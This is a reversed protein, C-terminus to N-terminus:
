NVGGGGSKIRKVFKVHVDMVDERIQWVALLSCNTVPSLLIGNVTCYVCVCILWIALVTNSTKISNRLLFMYIMLVLVVLVIGNRLLLNMYGSDIFFYEGSQIDTNSIITQGFLTVGFKDMGVKNMLLRNNFIKNLAMWKIDTANYMMSLVYTLMGAVPFLLTAILTVIRNYKLINMKLKEALVYFMLFIMVIVFALRTVTKKYVWLNLMATVGIWVWPVSKGKKTTYAYFGAFIINILYISPFSVYDFGLFYRIRRLERIFDNDVIGVYASLVTFFWASGSVWFNFICIEVFDIGRAAMCIILVNLMTNSSEANSTFQSIITVMCCVISFCFLKVSYKTDLFTIKSVLLTLAILRLVTCPGYGFFDLYKTRMMYEQIIWLLLGSFFILKKLSVNRISHKANNKSRYGIEM